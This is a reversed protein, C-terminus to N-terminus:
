VEEEAETQASKMKDEERQKRAAIKVDDVMAEMEGWPLSPTLMKILRKRMEEKEFKVIDPTETEQGKYWTEIMSDVTAQVNNIEDSSINNNITNCPQFTCKM